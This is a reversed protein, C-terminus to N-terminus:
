NKTKKSFSPRDQKILLGEKTKLDFKNNGNALIIFEEFSPINNCNLFHKRIANEKSPRTKKFTLPSIEIHEESRVKLHRDTEGYYPSNCRSYRYKYAVGSVLDFPLRDKFHFVNSIKKPM